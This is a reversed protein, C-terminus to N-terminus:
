VELTKKIGPLDYEQRPTITLNGKSDAYMVTTDTSNESKDGKSTPMKYKIISDVSVQDATNALGKVKLTLSLEGAKKNALVRTVLERLTQTLTDAVIGANLCEVVDDFPVITPVPKREDRM